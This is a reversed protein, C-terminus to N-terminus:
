PTASTEVSASKARNESTRHTSGSCQARMRPWHM